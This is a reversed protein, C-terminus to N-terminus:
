KRIKNMHFVESAAHKQLEHYQEESFELHQKHEGYTKGWSNDGIYSRALASETFKDTLSSKQFKVCDM